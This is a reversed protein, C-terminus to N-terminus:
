RRLEIRGDPHIRRDALENLTRESVDQWGLSRFLDQAARRHAAAQDLNNSQAEFRALVAHNEAIKLDVVPLLEPAIKSRTKELAALSQEFSRPTKPLSLLQPLGLAYASQGLQQLKRAEQRDLASFSKSQEYRYAIRATALYGLYGTGPLLVLCALLSLLFSPRIKTSERRM